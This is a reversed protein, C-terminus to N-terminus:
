GRLYPATAGSSRHPVRTLVDTLATVIPRAASNTAAPQELPLLLGEEPGADLVGGVLVDDGGVLEGVPDVAVFVATPLGDLSKTTIMSFWLALLADSPM